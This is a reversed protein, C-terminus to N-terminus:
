EFQNQMITSEISVLEVLDETIDPLAEDRLFNICFPAFVMAQSNLLSLLDIEVPEVHQCHCTHAQPQNLQGLLVLYTM